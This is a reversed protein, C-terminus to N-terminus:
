HVFQQVYMYIYINLLFFYKNKSVDGGFDGNSAAIIVTDKLDVRVNTKGSQRQDYIGSNSAIVVNTICGIITTLIIKTLILM